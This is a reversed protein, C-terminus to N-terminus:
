ALRLLPQGADVESGTPVLLAAVVADHEARVTNFVKMAEIVCLPDGARVASGAEVFAPADPAPRFHVIGALPAELLDRRVPPREPSPPVGPASPIGPESADPQSPATPNAVPLNPARVLRLTWGAEGYTMEALDSAAMTAMLAKIASLNM